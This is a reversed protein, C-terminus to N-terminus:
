QDKLYCAAQQVESEGEPVRSQEGSGREARGAWMPVIREPNAPRQEQPCREMQRFGGSCVTAEKGSEEFARRSCLGVPEPFVAVCSRSHEPKQLIRWFHAPLDLSGQHHWVGQNSFPSGLPGCIEKRLVCRSVTWVSLGAKDRADKLEYCQGPTWAWCRM